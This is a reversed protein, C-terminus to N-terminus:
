VSVCESVCVSEVTGNKARIPEAFSTHSVKSAISSFCDIIRNRHKNNDDLSCASALAAHTWYLNSSRYSLHQAITSCSHHSAQTKQYINSHTQTHTHHKCVLVNEADLERNLQPLLRGHTLSHHGNEIKEKNETRPLSPYKSVSSASLIIEISLLLTLFSM